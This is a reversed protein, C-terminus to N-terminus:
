GLAMHCAGDAAAGLAADHLQGLLGLHVAQQCAVDVAQGVVEEDERAMEHERLPGLLGNETLLADSGEPYRRQLTTSADDFPRRLATGQFPREVPHSLAQLSAAAADHPLNTRCQRMVRQLYTCLLKKKPM